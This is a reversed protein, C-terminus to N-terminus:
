YRHWKVFSTAILNQLFRRMPLIPIVRCARIPESHILFGVHEYLIDARSVHFLKTESPIVYM